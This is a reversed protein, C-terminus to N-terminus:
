DASARESGPRSEGSRCSSQLEKAVGSYLLRGWTTLGPRKLKDLVVELARGGHARQLYCAEEAIASPLRRRHRVFRSFRNFM